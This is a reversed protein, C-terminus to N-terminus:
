SELVSFVLWRAGLCFLDPLRWTIAAVTAKESGYVAAGLEAKKWGNNTATPVRFISWPRRKNLASLPNAQYLRPLGHAHEVTFAHYLNLPGGSRTGELSREPGMHDVDKVPSNGAGTKAVVLGHLGVILWRRNFQLSPIM